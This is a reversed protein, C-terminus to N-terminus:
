SAPMVDLRVVLGELEPKPPPYRRMVLPDHGPVIHQPSPAQVRLADYADLMDGLQSGDYAAAHPYRCLAAAFGHRATSSRRYCELDKFYRAMSIEPQTGIGPKQVEGFPCIPQGFFGSMEDAVSVGFLKL